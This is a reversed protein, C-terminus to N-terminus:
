PTRTIVRHPTRVIHRTVAAAMKQVTFGEITPYWEKYNMGKPWNTHYREMLADLWPCEDGLAHLEQVAPYFERQMLEIDPPNGGRIGFRYQAVSLTVYIAKSMVCCEPFGSLMSWALVHGLHTDSWAPAGFWTVTMILTDLAGKVDDNQPPDDSMLKAMRKYDDPLKMEKTEKKIEQRPGM